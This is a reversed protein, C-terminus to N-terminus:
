WITTVELSKQNLLACCARGLPQNTMVDGDTFTDAVCHKNEVFKMLMEKLEWLIDMVCVQAIALYM